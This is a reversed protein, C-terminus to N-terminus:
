LTTGSRNARMGVVRAKADYTGTGRHLGRVEAIAEVAHGILLRNVEANALVHAAADRLKRRREAHEPTTPTRRDTLGQMLQVLGQMMEKKREVHGSLAGTDLSTLAQRELALVSQLEDIWVLAQAFSEENSASFTKARAKPASESLVESM